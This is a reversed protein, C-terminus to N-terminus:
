ELEAMERALMAHKRILGWRYGGLEGSQRIVRHCPILLAVPNAGIASGVARVAKPKGITQAIASYSVLKGAPITLLAQWVKIQFNTGKVLVSLPKDGACDILFMRRIVDATQNQEEEFKALPWEQTLAILLQQQTQQEVFVFSCVGRSTIAIFAHGYPTQHIAFFITLGAGMQKYQAPTVATLQVFHDYLRSGSSLGIEDSVALVSMDSQQFLQQARDLTLVQLFRKPTVGAWRSFVRQFHSPSLGIHSAIDELNPQYQVRARIFEIAKAVHEYDTM